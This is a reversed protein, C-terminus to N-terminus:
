KEVIIKTWNYIIDEETTISMLIEKLDQTRDVYISYMEILEKSVNNIRLFEEIDLEHVIINVEYNKKNINVVENITRNDINLKTGFKEFYKTSIYNVNKVEDFYDITNYYNFMIQYITIVATAIIGVSIIVEILTFGNDKKM